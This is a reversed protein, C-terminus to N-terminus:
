ITSIFRMHKFYFIDNSSNFVGKRYVLCLTMRVLSISAGPPALNVLRPGAATVPSVTPWTM